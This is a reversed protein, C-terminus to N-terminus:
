AHPPGPRDLQELLRSSEFAAELVVRVIDANLLLDDTGSAHGDPWAPTTRCSDWQVPNQHCFIVLTVPMDQINWAVNRDRYITNFSISDGTVAVLNRTELPLAATLGRLIRRAPRDVSPLVLLERQDPSYAQVQAM